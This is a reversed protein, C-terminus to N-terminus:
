VQEKTKENFLKFQKQAKKLEEDQKKIDEKLSDIERQKAHRFDQFITKNNELYSKIKKKHQGKDEECFKAISEELSEEISKKLEKPKIIFYHKEDSVKVKKTDGWTWPKYWTSISVDTYQAEKFDYDLSSKPIKIDIDIQSDFDINEIKITEIKIDLAKELESDLDEKYEKLLKTSDREFEFYVEKIESKMDLYNNKHDQMLVDMYEHMKKMVENVNIEKDIAIKVEDDKLNIKEKNAQAKKKSIRDSDGLAIAQAYAIALKSMDDINSTLNKEISNDIVGEIKEIYKEKLTDSESNMRNQMNQAEKELFEIAKKLNEEAENKPKMLTKIRTELSNKESNFIEQIQSNAKKLIKIKVETDIYENIDQELKEIGLYEIFKSEWQEGFIEQFDEQFNKFDKKVRGFKPNERKLLQNKASIPYIKPSKIEHMNAAKKLKKIAVKEHTGWADSMLEIYENENEAEDDKGKFNDDMAEDIKNLLFYVDFNKDKNHREKITHWLGQEDGSLNADLQGYDFMFLALDVDNLVSRTQDKHKQKYGEGTSNPGPTDIFTISFDESSSTQLNKFPYFLEIREVNHYKKDKCEEDKQAYQKIEDELNEKIEVKEKGDNFYIIVKKEIDPKSYIYTASDTTAHNFAPLVERGFLANIFTSKGASMNAVVAIKYEQNELNKKIKELPEIKEKAYQNCYELFSDIKDNLRPVSLKNM